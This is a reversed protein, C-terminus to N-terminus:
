LYSILEEKTQCLVLDPRIKEKKGIGKAVYKMYIESNTYVKESHVRAESFAEFMEDMLHKPLFEVVNKVFLHSGVYNYFEAIFKEYNKANVPSQQLKEMLANIRNANEKLKNAWFYGIKKDKIVLRALYKRFKILQDVEMYCASQGKHAIIMTHPMAFGLQKGLSATYQEGFYSCTLASWGGSWYKTWRIKSFKEKRTM